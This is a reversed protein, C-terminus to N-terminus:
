KWAKDLSVRLVTSPTGTIGFDNDNVLVVDKEGMLAIGEIKGPYVGGDAVLLSTKKLPQIDSKALDSQALSPSTAVDDWKTGAINTAGDKLDILYFKTTRSIRELIVFTEEGVRTLESIKVNNQKRKKKKNDAPFTDPLDLQYVYEAVSKGSEAEIKLLRVNRSGSYAKKNPNALPSQMSFYLYKEDKSVALSEAGRNLQRKALIAPLTGQVDYKAASLDAEMGAPVLRKIVRGDAAVHILSPGYEESLWYTGDALRVLGEVDLGEADYDLQAGDPGYAGETNTIKLPASLGTIPNGDRDKLELKELLEVKGDVAKFTLITPSFSPLPFIKAAKVGDCAEKLSRKIVKESDGCKVNPGRDTATYFVGEDDGTRRYAASGIGYTSHMIHGSPFTIKGLDLEKDASSIDLVKVDEAQTVTGLALLSATTLAFLTKLTM